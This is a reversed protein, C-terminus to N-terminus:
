VNNKNDDVPKVIPKLIPNSLLNRLKKYSEHQEKSLSVYSPVWPFAHYVDTPLTSEYLLAVESIYSRSYCKQNRMMFEYGNRLAKADSKSVSASSGM